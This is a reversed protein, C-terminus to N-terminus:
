CSSCRAEEGIQRKLLVVSEDVSKVIAVSKLVVALELRLRGSERLV